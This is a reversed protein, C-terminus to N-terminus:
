VMGGWVVMRSEMKVTWRLSATHGRGISKMGSRKM